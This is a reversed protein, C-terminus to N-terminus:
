IVFKLSKDEATARNDNIVTEACFTTGPAGEKDMDKSISPFAPLTIPVTVAGFFL